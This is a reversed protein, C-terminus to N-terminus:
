CVPTRTFLKFCPMRGHKASSPYLFSKYRLQMLDFIEKIVRSFFASSQMRCTRRNNNKPLGPPYRIAQSCVVATGAVEKWGAARRGQALGEGSSYYNNLLWFFLIHPFLWWYCLQCGGALLAVEVHFDGESFYHLRAENSMKDPLQM